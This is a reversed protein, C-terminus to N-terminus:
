GEGEPVAGQLVALEERLVAALQEDSMHAFEDPEDGGEPTIAKLYDLVWRAAMHAQSNKPDAAKSRMNMVIDQMSEPDLNLERLRERYAVMFAADHRKWASVTASHLGRSKAWEAQSGSREPDVLWDIFDVMEPLLGTTKDRRPSSRPPM